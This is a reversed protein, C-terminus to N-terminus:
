LLPPIYNVNTPLVSHTDVENYAQNATLVYSTESFLIFFIFFSVNASIKKNTSVFFYDIFKTRNKWKIKLLYKHTNQCVNRYLELAITSDWIFLFGVAKEILWSKILEIWIQHVSRDVFQCFHEFDIMNFYAAIHIFMQRDILEVDFTIRTDTGGVPIFHIYAFSHTFGFQLRKEISLNNRTNPGIWMEKNTWGPGLISFYLNSGILISALRAQIWTCNQNNASNLFPLIASEIKIRLWECCLTTSIKFKVIAHWSKM